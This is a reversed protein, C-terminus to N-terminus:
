LWIWLWVQLDLVGGLSLCVIESCRALGASGLYAANLIAKSPWSASRSRRLAGRQGLCGNTKWKTGANATHGQSHKSSGDTEESARTTSYSNYKVNSVTNSCPEWLGRCAAHALLAVHQLSKMNQPRVATESVSRTQTQHDPATQYLNKM